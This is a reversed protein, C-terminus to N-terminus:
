DHGWNDDGWGNNGWGLLRVSENGVATTIAFGSEIAAAQPTENGLASNIAFGTTSLTVDARITETGVTTTVAIGDPAAYTALVLSENGVATTSSVGEAAIVVGTFVSETGLSFTASIGSPTAAATPIETGLSFTTSVGTESITAGASILNHGDEGMTFSAAVGSLIVARADERKHSGSRAFRLAEPDIASVPDLAPHKSDWCEPCTRLGNWESQLELYPYSLGCKDCIAKAHVGTAYRAM